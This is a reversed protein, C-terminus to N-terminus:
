YESAAEYTSELDSIVDKVKTELDFVSISKTEYEGMMGGCDVKGNCLEIEEYIIKTPTVWSGFIAKDLVKSNKKTTFDYLWIQKDPYVTYLIKNSGTLVSPSYSAEDIGEIKRQTKTTINYLYLGDGKKEYKRYVITKDDLWEPQTAGSIVQKSFDSLNYVYVNFDSPNRPSSTSIQLLYKGDKSFRIKESDEIFGGRGYSGTSVDELTKLLGDNFFFLQWKEGTIIASVLYSFKNPLSFGATLVFLDNSLKKRESIEKTELNLTYLGCGFDGKVIGCKVFGLTAGDVVKIHRIEIDPIQKGKEDYAPSSSKNKPYSTWKTIEKSKTDYSFINNDKPYFIKGTVIGVAQPTVTPMAEESPLADAPSPTTDTQLNKDQKQLGRFMTGAYFVGALLILTLLILLLVKVWGNKNNGTYIGTPQPPSESFNQNQLNKQM